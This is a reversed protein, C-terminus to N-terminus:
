IPIINASQLKRIVALRQMIIGAQVTDAVALACRPCLRGGAQVPRL